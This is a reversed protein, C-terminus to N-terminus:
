RAAGAPPMAIISCRPAAPCRYQPGTRPRAQPCHAAAQHLTQCIAEFPDRDTFRLRLARLSPLKVIERMVWAAYPDHLLPQHIDYNDSGMDMRNLYFCEIRRLVQAPVAPSDWPPHEADTGFLQGGRQEMPYVVRRVGPFASLLDRLALPRRKGDLSLSPCHGRIKYRALGSGPEGIGIHELLPMAAALRPLQALTLASGLAQDELYVELILTLSTLRPWSVQCGVRCQTSLVLLDPSSIPFCFGICRTGSFSAMPRPCAQHVAGLGVLPQATGVLVLRTAHAGIAERFTAPLACLWRETLRRVAAPARPAAGEV